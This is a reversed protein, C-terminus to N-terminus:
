QPIALYSKAGAYQQMQTQALGVYSPHISEEDDDNSQQQVAPLPRNSASSAAAIPTSFLAYDSHQQHQMSTAVNNDVTTALVATSRASAYQPSSAQVNGDYQKSSTSLSVYTNNPLNSQNNNPTAREGVYDISSYYHTTLRSILVIFKSGAFPQQQQQPPPSYGRENKLKSSFFVFVFVFVISQMITQRLMTQHQQM